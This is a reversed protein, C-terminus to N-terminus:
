DLLEVKKKHFELDILHKKLDAEEKELDIPKLSKDIVVRTFEVVSSDSGKASVLKRENEICPIIKDTKNSKASDNKKIPSNNEDQM